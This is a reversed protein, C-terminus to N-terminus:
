ILLTHTHIGISLPQLRTRLSITQTIVVTVVLFPSTKMWLCDLFRNPVSQISRKLSHSWGILWKQLLISFEAACACSNFSSSFALNESTKEAHTPFHVLAIALNSGFSFARGM